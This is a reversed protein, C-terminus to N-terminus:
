NRQFRLQDKRVTVFIHSGAGAKGSLVLDSLPAEVKEEVTRRLERAGFEASFGCRALLRAVPRTFEVELRARRAHERVEELLLEVITECDQISLSRFMVVQDIRNVFEPRFTKRLTLLTEALLRPRDTSPAHGRFGMRERMSEEIAEVGVNSTLIVIAERFSVRNGQNDTVFGEDLIQLLLDHIRPDAKEIEDFLVVGQGRKRMADTLFGGESHGVYGPPAGILKAYEHPQSFESCDVRILSSLDRFMAENIAKAMETKGVGTRGVFFFTGIPRELSRLGVMARRIARAVTAIAEEQGIVRRRLQREIQEAEAAKSVAAVPLAAPELLHLGSTRADDAVPLEVRGIELAPNVEVAVRYFAAEAEAHAETGGHAEFHGRVVESYHVICANVVLQQYARKSGIRSRSLLCEVEGPTFRRVKVFEDIFTCFRMVVNPEMHIM